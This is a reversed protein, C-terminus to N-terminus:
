LTWENGFGERAVADANCKLELLREFDPEQHNAKNCARCLKQGVIEPAKGCWECKNM